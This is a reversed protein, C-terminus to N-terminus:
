FYDVTTQVEVVSYGGGSNMSGPLLLALVEMSPTLTGVPHFRQLEFPGGCLQLKTPFPPAACHTLKRRLASAFSIFSAVVLPMFTYPAHGFDFFSSLFWCGQM